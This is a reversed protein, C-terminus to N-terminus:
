GVQKYAQHKNPETRRHAITLIRSDSCPIPLPESWSYSKLIQIASDLQSSGILLALRGTTAILNAAVPLTTKFREVARLTVVDFTAPALTEARFNQINIDTLTLARAVERLFTAKKHNSEILTVRVHPSWLKIPIGPFGAGSGLDALSPSEGNTAPRQDNATAPALAGESHQAKERRQLAARGRISAVETAAETAASSQEAPCGSAATGVHNKGAVAANRDPFLHRAAFLSEGFHRTVIEEPDRIATLNIRSNWRLLIDIYTSIHLLLDETILTPEQSSGLFPTLLQAIRATDM